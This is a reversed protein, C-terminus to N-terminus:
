EQSSHFFMWYVATCFGLLLVYIWLIASVNQIHIFSALFSSLSTLAINILYMIASATGAIHRFFSMGKGASLPFIFGTAFFMLGSATALLTISNSFQLSALLALIALSFFSNIAFFYLAKVKYKNLLYRCVFTAALFAIGLSLSFHGFFISSYHMKTQILFPALTNFVILLSYTAGMLMVLVMFRRHKLVELMNRKMTKLNLEQRAQHTEPILVFSSVLGLVAVISFFYLGATWGFYFQLYGGLFPGLIPGLGWMTGMLTGIKILKEPPLVDSFISRMIVAVAGLSLGQLLRATLLVHIDPTVIPLLSAILFGFWAIILLKKRGLSDTLLGIFFNGLAYGLLYLSIVAQALGPTVKFNNSIAPLSPSILDVGMGMIPIFCLLTWVILQTRKESLHNTCTHM